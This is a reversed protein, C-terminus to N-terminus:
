RKYFPRIRGGKYIAIHDILHAWFARKQERSFSSYRSDLIAQISDVNVQPKKTAEKKRLDELQKRLAVYDKEYDERDILDSLYLDKLKAMQRKISDPTAKKAQSRPTRKKKAAQGQLDQLDKVVNDLLYREVKTESVSLSHKFVDTNLISVQCRYRIRGANPFGVMTYGCEGCRILGGFIYLNKRQRRKLALQRQAEDFEERSVIPRFYDAVGKYEGIYQRKQLIRSITSLSLRIGNQSLDARVAKISRKQLYLQFIKRVMAAKEEDIVPRKNEIRYGLPISGCIVRGEKLRYANVAKIRESTKLREREALSIQLNFLFRGDATTVDVDNEDVARFACQHREFLALLNGADQMNRSFRDLRTFLVVDVEDLRELMRSFDKRNKIDKASIGDDIFTGCVELDNADCFQQLRDLQAPITDKQRGREEVSVRAYLFAKNLKTTTM